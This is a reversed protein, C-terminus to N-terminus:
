SLTLKKSVRYMAVVLTCAVMYIDDKVNQDYKVSNQRWLFLYPDPTSTKLILVFSWSHSKEPNIQIARTM